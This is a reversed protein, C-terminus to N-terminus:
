NFFKNWIQKRTDSDGHWLGSSSPLVHTELENMNFPLNQKEIANKFEIFAAQGNFYLDKNLLEEFDNYEQNQINKDLSTEQSNNNLRTCYSLSDWVGIDKDALKKIKEPYPLKPDIDLLKWFQNSPHSYYEGKTNSMNGPFSGLIIKSSNPNIINM